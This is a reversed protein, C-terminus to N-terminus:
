KLPDPAILRLAVEHAAGDLVTVRQAHSRLSELFEPDNWLGNEVYELAIALYEGAPLGKVQYRGRRDPRVARVKSSDEGWHAPDEAFVLVTADVFPLGKEDSLQGSV